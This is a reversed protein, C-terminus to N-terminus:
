GWYEPRTQCSLQVATTTVPPMKLPQSITIKERSDTARDAKARRLYPTHDNHRTPSGMPTPADMEMGMFRNPSHNAKSYVSHQIPDGGNNKKSRKERAQPGPRGNAHADRGDDSTCIPVHKTCYILDVITSWSKRSREKTVYIGRSTLLGVWTTVQNRTWNRIAAPCFATLFESWLDEGELDTTTYAAM